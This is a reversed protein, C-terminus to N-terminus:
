SASDTTDKKNQTLLDIRRMLNHKLAGMRDIFLIGDLHDCEHQIVVAEFKSAKLERWQGQEDQARVVIRRSRAVPGVYEPLSMCGERMQYAGEHSVIEPNVLIQPGNGKPAHKSCDIFVIRWLAGIQPAAIGVSHGSAMSTDKLDQIVAQIEDSMVDKVPSCVKRLLPHPAELVARIAM